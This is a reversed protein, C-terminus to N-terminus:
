TIDMIFEDFDGRAGWGPHTVPHIYTYDCVYKKGVTVSSWVEQLIREFETEPISEKIPTTHDCDSADMIQGMIILEEETLHQAM